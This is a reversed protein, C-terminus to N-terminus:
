KLSTILSEKVNKHLAIFLQLPTTFENKAMLAMFQEKQNENEFEIEMVLPNKPQDAIAKLRTIENDKELSEKLWNQYAQNLEKNAEVETTLKKSLEAIQKNWTTCAALSLEKFSSFGSQEIANEIIQQEDTNARFSFIKTM